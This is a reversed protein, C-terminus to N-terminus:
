TQYTWQISGSAGAPSTWSMNSMEKITDEYSFSLCPAKTANLWLSNVKALKDLPQMKTGNQNKEVMIHCLQTLTIKSTVEEFAGEFGRNDRNYQTTLAFPTIINEM